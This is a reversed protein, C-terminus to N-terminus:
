TVEARYVLEWGNYILAVKKLTVKTAIQQIRADNAYKRLQVEAEAIKTKLKADNYESRAIYELEVLYGYPMDPYRALFPELYFDAFGGGM